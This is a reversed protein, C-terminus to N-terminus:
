EWNRNAEQTSLMELREDIRRKADIEEKRFLSSWKLLTVKTEKVKETVQFMPTGTKEIAWAKAVVEKIGDKGVWRKDCYFIRRKKERDKAETLLLLRHDSVSKYFSHVEVDRHDMLWDWSCFLRDI